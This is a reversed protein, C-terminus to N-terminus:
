PRRKADAQLQGLKTHAVHKVARDFTEGQCPQNLQRQQLSGALTRRKSGCVKDSVRRLPGCLEAVGQEYALKLDVISVKLIREAEANSKVTATAVAPISYFLCM